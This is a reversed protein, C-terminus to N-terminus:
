TKLKTKLESITSASSLFLKSELSVGINEVIYSVLANEKLKAPEAIKLMKYCFESYSETKKKKTGCLKKHIKMTNVEETFERKLGRKLQTWNKPKLEHKVYWKASGTLLRRAFIMKEKDDWEFTDAQEEYETIWDQIDQNEDGNFTELTEEIDKFTFKPRRNCMRRQVTESESSNSRNCRLTENEIRLQSIEDEVKKQSIKRCNSTTTEVQISHRASANADSDSGSNEYQKMQRLVRSTRSKIRRLAKIAVDAARFAALVDTDSELNESLELNENEDSIEKAKLNEYTTM